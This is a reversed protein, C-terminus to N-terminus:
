SLACIGMGGGRVKGADTADFYKAFTNIPIAKMEMAHEGDKPTDVGNNHPSFGNRPYDVVASPYFDIFPHADLVQQGHIIDTTYLAQCETCPVYVTSDGIKPPSGDPWLGNDCVRRTDGNGLRYWFHTRPDKSGEPTGVYIPITQRETM